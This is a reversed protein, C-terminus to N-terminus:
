IRILLAGTEACGVIATNAGGCTAASATSYTFAATVVSGLLLLLGIIGVALTIALSTQKMKM